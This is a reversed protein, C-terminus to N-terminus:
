SPTPRITHRSPPMVRGVRGPARPGGPKAPRNATARDPGPSTLLTTARAGPGGSRRARSQDEHTQGKPAQPRLFSSRTPRRPGRTRGHNRREVIVVAGSPTRHKNLRGRNPRASPWAAPSTSGPLRGVGVGAGFRREPAGVSRLNKSPRRPSARVTSSQPCITGGLCCPQAPDRGGAARAARRFNPLTRRVGFITRPVAGHRRDSGRVLEKGARARTPGALLLLRELAALEAGL